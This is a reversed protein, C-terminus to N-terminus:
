KLLFISLKFSSQATGGNTYTVRACKGMVSAAYAQTTGTTYTWGNTNATYDWSSPPVTECDENNSFQMKLGDTSSSVDSTAVVGVTEYDWVAFTPSTYVGSVGLTATTQEVGQYVPEAKAATCAPINPMLM